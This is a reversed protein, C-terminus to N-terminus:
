SSEHKTAEDMDMLYLKMPPLGTKQNKQMDSQNTISNHLHNCAKELGKDGGLVEYESSTQSIQEALRDNAEQLLFDKEILAKQAIVLDDKIQALE